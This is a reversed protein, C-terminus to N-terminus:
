PATPADERSFLAPAIERLTKPRWHLDREIPLGLAGRVSELERLSFYGLEREHGDVLGFFTDEGDFETALWTWLGDPTFFKLHVIADGGKSEQTYLAPMTKRIDQTLLKM